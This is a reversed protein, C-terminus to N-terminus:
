LLIFYLCCALLLPLKTILVGVFVAFYDLNFLEKGARFFVASGLVVGYIMVLISLFIGYPIFSIAGALMAATAIPSVSLVTTALGEYFGGKGDLVHMAVSFFFAFVLFLGIIGFLSGVIAYILFAEPILKLKTSFLLLGASFMLSSAILYILSKFISEKKFSKIEVVPDYLLRLM